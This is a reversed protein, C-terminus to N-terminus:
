HRRCNRRSILFCCPWGGNNWVVCAIKNYGSAYTLAANASQSFGSVAIHKPNVRPHKRLFDVAGDINKVYWDHGMALRAVVSLHNAWAWIHYPMKRWTDTGPTLWEPYGSADILLVAFGKDALKRCYTHFQALKIGGANAAVVVGPWPNPVQESPFFCFGPLVDGEALLVGVAMKEARSTFCCALVFLTALSLSFIRHRSRIM